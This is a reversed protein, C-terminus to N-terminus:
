FRQEADAGGHPQHFRRSPEQADHFKCFEARYRCEVVETPGNRNKDVILEAAGLDFTEGHAQEREGKKVQERRYYAERHILVVNDSDNEIAGSERLDSMTPRKDARAAAGRNVQAGVVVPINLEVALEHLGNSIESVEQERSHHKRTPRIKQLYDVYIVNVGHRKVEKRALSRIQGITLGSKAVLRFPSQRFWLMAAHLSRIGDATLSHARISASDIECLKSLLRPWLLAEPMELSVFLPRGDFLMSNVSCTELLATKGMSPRGGLTTLQENWFGGLIADLSDIGSKVGLLGGAAMVKRTHEYFRTMSSAADSVEVSSVSRDVIELVASEARELFSATEIEQDYGSAVQEHLVAIAARRHALDRVTKAYEEATSLAMSADIAVLGEDGGAQPLMGTRFLEDRVTTPEVLQGRKHLTQATKWIVRHSAVYFDEPQVDEVDAMPSGLMVVLALLAREADVSHPPVRM